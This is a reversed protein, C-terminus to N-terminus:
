PKQKVLSPALLITRLARICSKEPRFQRETHRSKHSHPHTKAREPHYRISKAASLLGPKTRVVSITQHQKVKNKDLSERRRAVACTNKDTKIM